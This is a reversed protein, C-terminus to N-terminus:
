APKKSETGLWAVFSDKDPEYKLLHLGSQLGCHRMSHRNCYQLHAPTHNYEWNKWMEFPSSENWGVPRSPVTVFLTGRESLCNACLRLVQVPNPLHEIVHPMSIVDFTGM